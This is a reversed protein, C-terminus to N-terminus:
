SIVACSFAVLESLGFHPITMEFFTLKGQESGCTSCPVSVSKMEKVACANNGANSDTEIGANEPGTTSKKVHRPQVVVEISGHNEPDEPKRYYSRAEAALQWTGAMTYSTPTCGESNNANTEELSWRYEILVSCNHLAKFNMAPPKATWSGCIIPQGQIMGQVSGGSDGLTIDCVIEEIYDPYAVTTSTGSASLTADNHFM